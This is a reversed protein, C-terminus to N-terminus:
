QAAVAPQSTATRRVYVDVRRVSDLKIPAMAKEWMGSRRLLAALKRPYSDAGDIRVDSWILVEDVKTASLEKQLFRNDERYPILVIKQNLFYSVNVGKNNDSSTFRKVLGNSKLKEAVQAFVPRTEGDRIM